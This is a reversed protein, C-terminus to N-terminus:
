RPRRRPRSPTATAPDAPWDHKPYRGAMEKRVERWTGQWFGPLDATVQVPRRAPSLLEIVVPVAGDGVTPHTTLGYLDQVRAAARPTGDDYSIAITRGDAAVFSTPALRDIAQRARHDLGARLANSLDVRDLDRRGTAGPLMPALWGELTALLAADSVDPWSGPQLGHLFALRGQLTRAGATWRLVEGNTARVRDLLAATTEPGARGAGGFVRPRARRRPGRHPSARRQPGSGM